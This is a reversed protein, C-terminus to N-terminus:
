ELEDMHSSTSMDVGTAAEAVDGEDVRIEVVAPSPSGTRRSPSPLGSSMTADEGHQQHENTSRAFDWGLASSPRGSASGFATGNQWNRIGVSTSNARDLEDDSGSLAPSPM